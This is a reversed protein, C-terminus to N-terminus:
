HRGLLVNFSTDLNIIHFKAKTKCGDLILLLTTSGLVNRAQENFGNLIMMNAQLMSINIRLYSLIRLSIIKVLAVLNIIVSALRFYGVDMIIYLLNNHDIIGLLLDNYLFTVRLDERIVHEISWM